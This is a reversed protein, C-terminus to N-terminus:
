FESAGCVPCHLSNSFNCVHPPPAADPAFSQQSAVQAELEKIRAKLKQNEAQLALFQRNIGAYAQSLSVKKM